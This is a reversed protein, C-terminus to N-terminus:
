ILAWIKDFASTQPVSINSATELEQNDRTKNNSLYLWESLCDVLHRIKAIDKRIAEPATGGVSTYQEVSRKKDSLIEIAGSYINLGGLLM